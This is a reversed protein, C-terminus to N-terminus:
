VCAFHRPVPGNGRRVKGICKYADVMLGANEKGIPLRVGVSINIGARDDLRIWGGKRYLM